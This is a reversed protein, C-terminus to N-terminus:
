LIALRNKFVTLRWKLFSTNQEGDIKMKNFCLWKQTFDQEPLEGCKMFRAFPNRHGCFGEV